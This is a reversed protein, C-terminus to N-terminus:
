FAIVANGVIPMALLALGVMGPSPKLLSEWYRSEVSLGARKGGNRIMSMNMTMMANAITKKIWAFIFWRCNTM